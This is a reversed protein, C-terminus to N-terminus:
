NGNAVNPNGPNPIGDKKTDWPDLAGKAQKPAVIDVHWDLYLYNSGLKVGHRYPEVVRDFESQGAQNVRAEMYYDPEATKKEGMLIIESDSLGEVRSGMKVLKEFNVALHKNLVYSHMEGPGNEDEIEPDNPCRMLLPNWVAPVFVFNPWRLSRGKDPLAAWQPEIGLTKWVPPNVSNDLEGIPYVVGRNQQAYLNLHIGIDRLQAKCKLSLAQGKARTVAPLLIALLLAIIGIVVLLEVLTFAGRNTGHRKTM